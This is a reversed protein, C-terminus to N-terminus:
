ILREFTAIFRQKTWNKTERFIAIFLIKILLLDLGTFLRTSIPWNKLGYKDKLLRIIKPIKPPEFNYNNFNKDM